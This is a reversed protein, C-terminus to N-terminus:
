PRPARSAVNEFTEEYDEHMTGALRDWFTFYLGYNGNTRRHHMDHHTTTTSWRFWPHRVFARPLLEVGLHGYVNRLIMFALFLFLAIVHIPMFLAVVPVFAAQVLAELPSFSYAAM